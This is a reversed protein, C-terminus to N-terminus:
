EYIDQIVGVGKIKGERFILKMNPKIYEKRYIFEFTVLARDGTRLSPDDNDIVNRSKIDEIDIMRASQRVCGIHLFPQYKNKITTHNSQIISVNAKFKSVFRYPNNNSIVVMGKRLCNINIKKLALTCYSGSNAENTQIRKCHISRIHTKIYDGTGKCPGVLANDGVKIKGSNLMGSVVIGVGTIMFWGDIIFEVFQNENNISNNSKRSNLLNMFKKLYDLGSGTVNSISFIPVCNDYTINKAVIPIDDENNVFYPLKRLGPLKLLRIIQEKTTQYVEKPCIDIKTIIFYFPIKLSLTLAIHEKTMHSIGNNAAVVVMCYDPLVSSVGYITTRLYKEHGCLDNLTIVKSSDLVIDSWTKRSDNNNQENVLNGSSDFGIIHQTSTSTRGTELEHKYHTISSRSKGRGNDLINKSLVGILTSKGADVNGVVSIYLDIYQGKPYNARIFIEAVLLNNKESLKKISIYNICANVKECIASLNAISLNLDNETLGGFSGDDNIGLQYVCEGNGERIRYLLQTALKEKKIQNICLLQSKYEINGEDSEADYIENIEEVDINVNIESKTMLSFDKIKNLDM